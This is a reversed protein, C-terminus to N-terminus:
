AAITKTPTSEAILGRKRMLAVFEEACESCLLHPVQVYPYAILMRPHERREEELERGCDDCFDKTM